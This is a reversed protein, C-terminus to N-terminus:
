LVSIAPPLAGPSTTDAPATPEARRLEFYLVTAALVPIPAVLAAVLLRAALGPGSSASGSAIDVASAGVAIPVALVLFLALVRWRNGRVLERSRGLARLGGPRELVAVAACVSWSTFLQMQLMFLLILIFLLVLVLGLLSSGGNVVITALIGAVLLPVISAALAITIGAAVGVLLLRPLASWAAILLNRASRRPESDFVDDVLLVIACVFLGVVVAAVILVGVGIGLSRTGPLHGLAVFAGILVAAVPALAHQEAYIRFTRRLVTSISVMRVM